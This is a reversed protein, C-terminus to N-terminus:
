GSRRLVVLDQNTDIRAAEFLEVSWDPTVLEALWELTMYAMGWETDKVGWDGAESSM